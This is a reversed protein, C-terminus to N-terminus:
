EESREASIQRAAPAGMGDVAEVTGMGVVFTAGAAAAVSLLEPKLRGAEFVGDFPPIPNKSPTIRPGTKDM